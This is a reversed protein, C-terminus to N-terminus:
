EHVLTAGVLRRHGRRLRSSLSQQTIDLEGAIDALTCTRPSDFYGYEYALELAEQQTDTLSYTAGHIPVLAHVTTVDIPIDHEQCKTQFDSIDDRSDGRVEFMWGDTTGVGSLVVLDTASFASLLGAYDWDWQARMLYESDVSDVLRVTHVGAHDDFAAEIDEPDGGRIWFYPIVFNDHPIHRELEIRADPLSDFVSGLPFQGVPSTFEMVTAM